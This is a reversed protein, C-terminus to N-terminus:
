LSEVPDGMVWGNSCKSDLLLSKLEEYREKDIGQLKRRNTDLFHMYSLMDVRLCNKATQFVAKSYGEAIKVLENYTEDDLHELFHHGDMGVIDRYSIKFSFGEVLEKKRNNQM